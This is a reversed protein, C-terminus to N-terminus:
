WFIAGSGTQRRRKQIIIRCYAVAKETNGIQVSSLTVNVVVGVVHVFFPFYHNSLIYVSDAIILIILCKQSWFTPIQGNSAKKGQWLFVSSEKAFDLTKRQKLTNIHPFLEPYVIKDQLEGGMEGLGANERM